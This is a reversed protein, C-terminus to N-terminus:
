AGYRLREIQEEVLNAGDIVRNRTWACRVIPLTGQDGGADIWRARLRVVVLDMMDHRLCNEGSFRGSIRKRGGPCTEM